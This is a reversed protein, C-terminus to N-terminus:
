SARVREVFVITGPELSDDPEVPWGGYELRQVKEDTLIPAFMLDWKDRAVLFRYNPREGLVGPHAPEREFLRFGEDAILEEMRPIRRDKM